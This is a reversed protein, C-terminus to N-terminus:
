AAAPTAGAAARARRAYSLTWWILLGVVVMPAVSSVVAMVSTSLVYTLLVRVVAEVVFVTGWVITIVRQIRRFTPYQWLSNWWAVSEATGDTGFKRGFYFMLPRPFALSALSLVGFLGTVVSEKVLVLRASHFGLGSVVGLVIFLLSIGAFEDIHRQVAFSLGMELVPWFGSAVLAVVASVGRATLVFYTVLPLVVNFLITMVWGLAVRGRRRTPEVTATM